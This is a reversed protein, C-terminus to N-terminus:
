VFFIGGKPQKAWWAQRVLEFPNVAVAGLTKAKDRIRSTTLDYHANCDPGLQAIKGTKKSIAPTQYWARKLGLEKAFAHLEDASETSVMHGISDLLIM